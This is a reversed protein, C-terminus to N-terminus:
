CRLQDSQLCNVALCVQAIKDLLIVFPGPQNQTLKSCYDLLPAMAEADTGMLKCQSLFSKRLEVVELDTLQLAPTGVPTPRCAHLSALWM